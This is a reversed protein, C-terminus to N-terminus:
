VSPSQLAVVCSLSQLFGIPKTFCGYLPVKCLGYPIMFGRHPPSKAFVGICIHSQVCMHM